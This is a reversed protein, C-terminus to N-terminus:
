QFTEKRFGTPFEIPIDSLPEMSALILKLVPWKRLPQSMVVNMRPPVRIQM